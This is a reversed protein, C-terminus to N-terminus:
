ATLIVTSATIQSNRDKVQYERRVEELEKNMLTVAQIDQDKNLITVKGEQRMKSKVTETRNKKIIM